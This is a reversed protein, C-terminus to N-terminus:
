IRIHVLAGLNACARAFICVRGSDHLVKGMKAVSTVAGMARLTIAEAIHKRACGIGMEWRERDIQGFTVEMGSHSKGGGKGKEGRDKGGGIKNNGTKPGQNQRQEEDEEGMVEEEDKVHQEDAPQDDSAM